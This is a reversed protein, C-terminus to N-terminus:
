PCTDPATPCAGPALADKAMFQGKGGPNPPNTGSDKTVKGGFNACLVTSGSTFVVGVSGQSPEGLRYTIPIPGNGKATVQLNRAKLLATKVPSAVLARDRYRFVGRSVRWNAAALRFCASDRGGASNFVHLYAGDVTPNIAAPSVRPDRSQFIVSTTPGVAKDRILIKKGSIPTGNGGGGSGGVTVTVTALNSDTSGDWAAFTFRDTGTFGQEPFYTARTGVLGTTGHDPQSVIRLTLAEGDPDRANLVIAVPVDVPTTVSTDTAVAGHDPNPNDNHPGLHCTYCGIQFGRWVTKTGAEGSLTRDAKARSLM